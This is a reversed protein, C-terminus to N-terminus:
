KEAFALALVSNLFYNSVSIILQYLVAGKNVLHVLTCLTLGFAKGLVLLSFWCNLGWQGDSCLHSSLSIYTYSYSTPLIYVCLIYRLIYIGM